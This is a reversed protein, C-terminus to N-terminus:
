LVEKVIFRPASAGTLFATNDNSGNVFGLAYEDGVALSLTDSTFPAVRGNTAATVSIMSRQSVPTGNPDSQLFAICNEGSDFVAETLMGGSLQYAGVRRSKFSDVGTTNLCAGVNFIVTGLTAMVTAGGNFTAGSQDSAVLHCRIRGDYEVIWASNATICRFIVVENQIFLRSWEADASGGNITDGSGPKLLLAYTDDGDAIYVGVRDGVACTTPLLFDRNATLGAITCIHLTGVVGTLNATDVTNAAHELFGLHHLEVKRLDDNAESVDAIMALDGAAPATLATLGSPASDAM